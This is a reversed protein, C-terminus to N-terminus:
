QYNCYKIGIPSSCFKNFRRWDEWGVCRDGGVLGCPNNYGNIYKGARAKVEIKGLIEGNKSVVRELIKERHDFPGTRM